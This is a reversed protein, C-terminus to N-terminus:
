STGSMELLNIFIDLTVVHQVDCMYMYMHIKNKVMRKGTESYVIENLKLLIIRNMVIVVQIAVTPFITHLEHSPQM